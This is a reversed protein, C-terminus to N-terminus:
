PLGMICGNCLFIHYTGRYRVHCMLLQHPSAMALPRNFLHGGAGGEFGREAKLKCGEEFALPCFCCNHTSPCYGMRVWWFYWWFGFFM